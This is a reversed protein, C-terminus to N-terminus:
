KGDDENPDDWGYKRFEFMSDMFRIKRPHVIMMNGDEQEALGYTRGNQEIWKHFLCKREHVKCPRREPMVTIDGRAM